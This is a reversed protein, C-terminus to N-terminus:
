IILEKLFQAVPRKNFKFYRKVRNEGADDSGSSRQKQGACSPLTDLEGKPLPPAYRRPPHDKRRLLLQGIHDEDVKGLTTPVPRGPKPLVPGRHVEHFQGGQERAIKGAQVQCFQRKRLNKWARLAYQCSRDRTTSAGSPYQCPRLGYQAGRGARYQFQGSHNERFQGGQEQAIKGAAPLAPTKLFQRSGPVPFQSCERANKM